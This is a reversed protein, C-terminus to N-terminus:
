VYRWTHIKGNGKLLFKVPKTFPTELINTKPHNKYSEVSFLGDQTKASLNETSM